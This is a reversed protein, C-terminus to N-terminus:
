SFKIKIDSEYKQLVNFEIAFDRIKKIQTETLDSNGSKLSFLLRRKSFISINFKGFILRWFGSDEDIIISLNEFNVKEINIIGFLTKNEMKLIKETELIEIKTIFNSTLDRYINIILVGVLVSYSLNFKPFSESLVYVVIFLLM